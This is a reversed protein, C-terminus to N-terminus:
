TLVTKCSPCGVGNVRCWKRICRLHAQHKCPLQAREWSTCMGDPYKMSKETLTCVECTWTETDSIITVISMCEDSEDDVYLQSMSIGM